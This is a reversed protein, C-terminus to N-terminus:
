ECQFLRALGDLDTPAYCIVAFPLPADRTCLDEGTDLKASRRLVFHQRATWAFETRSTYDYCVGCFSDECCEMQCDACIPVGCDACEAVAPQGCTTVDASGSSVYEIQCNPM